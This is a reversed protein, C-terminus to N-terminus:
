TLVESQSTRGVELVVEEKTSQMVHFYARGDTDVISPFVMRLIQPKM